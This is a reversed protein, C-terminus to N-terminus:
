PFLTRFRWAGVARWFLALFPIAASTVVMEAVHSPTRATGELRRWAFRGIGAAATVACLAAARRAGGAAALMGAAGSGVIAVYLWPPRRRIRERYLHRHKAYLLADFRVNAQQRLSSGWPAPRVPHEVVADAARVITGGTELISFQLDSDERWARTFRADFGGIALLVDRRVFANATVFEARELGQTNRAHDTPPGDLPVVVRGSAAAAGGQMARLGEALWSAAPVTDDDTFAILPARTHQWGVNRASAPGRGGTNRLYRVPPGDPLRGAAEVVRQTAADPGDDVVLVEYRVAALTQRTAAGLCRRLLSPRGRTAIVIALEPAPPFADQGPRM